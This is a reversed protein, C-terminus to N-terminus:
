TQDVKMAFVSQIRRSKYGRFHVIVDQQRGQGSALLLDSGTESSVVSM